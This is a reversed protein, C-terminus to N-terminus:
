SCPEETRTFVANVALEGRDNSKPRKNPPRPLPRRRLAPGPLLRTYGGLVTLGNDTGLSVGGGGRCCSQGVGSRNLLEVIGDYAPQLREDVVNAGLLVVHTQDSINGPRELGEVANHGAEPLTEYFAWSKGNENLQTKWRRAVCSFIDGAYVVILNEMLQWALM